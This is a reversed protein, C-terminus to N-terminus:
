NTSSYRRPSGDTSSIRSSRRVRRKRAVSQVPHRSSTSCATASKAVNMRSPHNKTRTASSCPPCQVYQSKPQIQRFFWPRTRRFGSHVGATVRYQSITRGHASRRRDLGARARALGGADHPEKELAEERRTRLGRPEQREGERHAGGVLHAVPEARPERPEDRALPDLLELTPELEEAVRRGGAPAAEVHEGLEVPDLDPGDVGEGRVHKALVREFAAHARRELLVVARPGGHEEAIEPRAPQVGPQGIGGRELEQPAQEAAHLQTLEAPEGLREALVAHRELQALIAAAGVGPAPAQGVRGGAGVRPEPREDLLEAALIRTGPVHGEGPQEDARAADEAIMGVHAVTQLAAEPHDDDVLELVGVGELPLDEEVEGLSRVGALGVPPADLDLGLLEHDDAIRLLRDVEEAAGVELGVALDHAP